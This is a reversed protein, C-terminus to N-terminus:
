FAARNEGRPVRLVRLFVLLFANKLWLPVRRAARTAALRALSALSALYLRRQCKEAVSPVSLFEKECLVRFEILHLKHHM